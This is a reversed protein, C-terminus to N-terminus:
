QEPGHHSVCLSAFLQSVELSLLGPVRKAKEPYKSSDPWLPNHEPFAKELLNIIDNSESITTGKITAVPLGGTRSVRMFSAPKDGYCRISTYTSPLPLDSLTSLGYILGDM